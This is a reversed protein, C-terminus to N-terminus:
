VASRTWRYRLTSQGGSILKATGARSPRKRSSYDAQAIHLRAIELTDESHNFTNPRPGLRGPSTSASDQTLPEFPKIRHGAVQLPATGATASHSSEV